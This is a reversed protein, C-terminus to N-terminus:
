TTKAKKAKRSDHAEHLMEDFERLLDEIQVSNDLIEASSTAGMMGRKKKAALRALGQGERWTGRKRM